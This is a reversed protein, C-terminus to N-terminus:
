NIKLQRISDGGERSVRSFYLGAKVRQGQGDLGDWSLTVWGKKGAESRLLRVLKNKPTFIRLEAVEGSSRLVNFNLKPNEARNWTLVDPNESHANPAHVPKAAVPAAAVPAPVAAPVPAKPQRSARYVLFLAIFGLALWLRSVRKRAETPAVAMAKEEPTWGQALRPKISRKKRPAAKKRPSAKKKKKTAM